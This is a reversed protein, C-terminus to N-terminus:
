NISQNISLLPTTSFRIVLAHGPISPGLESFFLRFSMLKLKKVACSCHTRALFRNPFSLFLIPRLSRFLSPSSWYVSISVCASTPFSFFIPLLFFRRLLLNHFSIVLGIAMLRTSVSFFQCVNLSQIPWYM